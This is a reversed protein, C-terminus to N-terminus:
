TVQADYLIGHNSLLTPTHSLTCEVQQPQWSTGSATPHKAQETLIFRTLTVPDTDIGAKAGTGTKAAPAADAASAM